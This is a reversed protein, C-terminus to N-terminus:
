GQNYTSLEEYSGIDVKPNRVLEVHDAGFTSELLSVAQLTLASISKDKKFFKVVEDHLAYQFDTNM